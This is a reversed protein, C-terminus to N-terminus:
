FDVRALVPFHDSGFRQPLRRVEIAKVGRAFVYDLRAHLGLMGIWTARRDDITSRVPFVKRVTAIAPEEDGMWTNFDGGVITPVAASAGLAEIVAEAQRRRARFPGGRTFVATDLHVNAIRLQWAAGGRTRGAVAASAAVRRQRELPLEIVLADTLAITSLIANGRDEPVRSVAGNRMSPAYLVALGHERAVSRVDERPRGPPAPAIPGPVPFGRPFNSPVDTGARYTEQLMLIFDSAPEGDTFEGRLLRAILADVDGGGVHVNWTIVTLRDLPRRTTAAVAPEFLVPGVTDCWRSLQARVADGPPAIWEVRRESDPVVDRCGSAPAGAAVVHLLLVTTAAGFSM